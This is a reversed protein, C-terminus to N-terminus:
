VRWLQIQRCDGPALPTLVTGILVAMPSRSSHADYQSYQPDQSSCLCVSLVGKFGTIYVLSLTTLNVEVKLCGHSRLSNQSVCFSAKHFLLIKCTAHGQKGGVVAILCTTTM